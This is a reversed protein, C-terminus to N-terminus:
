IDERIVPCSMCRPGGRGRSLEALSITKVEIGNKDLLDNTVYNRDITVVKGPAICLTNSGDNWQERQSVLLNDGGCKILKVAPLGLAKAMVKDLSDTLNNFKLEGKSDLTIEFVDLPGQIEPHITFKDYDVMTFVTDLHTIEGTKPIDFALIKKFNSNQLLNRALNEAALATTRQSVAVCVTDKNIVAIDGGEISYSDRIDYWLQDGEKAFGKTYRFIYRLIMAERRRADTHMHNVTIGEGVCCGPDRTMYLNPMPDSVYANDGEILDMLSTVKETKVENRRIGSIVKAIMDKSNMSKLYETIATSLGVSNIRSLKLFEKIFQDKVEEDEMAKAAEDVYYVVEVGNEKLLEAFKDHEQQAVRLFPIDEFLMDGLTDPTLAELEAGPRHLLVKKLKGIESYNYIGKPM